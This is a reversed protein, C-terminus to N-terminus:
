NVLMFPPILFYDVSMM